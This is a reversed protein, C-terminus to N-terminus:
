IPAAHPIEVGLREPRLPTGRTTPCVRCLSTCGAPTSACPWWGAFEGNSASSSQLKVVSAFIARWALARPVFTPPDGRIQALHGYAIQYGYYNGERQRPRWSRSLDNQHFQPCTPSHPITMTMSLGREEARLFHKRAALASRALHGDALVRPFFHNRNAGDYRGSRLCCKKFAADQVARVRTM